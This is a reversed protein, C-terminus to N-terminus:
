AVSLVSVRGFPKLPYDNASGPSSGDDITPSGPALLYDFNNVDAFLPDGVFSTTALSASRNTIRGPGYFINNLLVPLTPGAPRVYM